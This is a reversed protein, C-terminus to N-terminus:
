LGNNEGKQRSVMGKLANSYKVKATFKMNSILELLTEM